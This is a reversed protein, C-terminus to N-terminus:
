LTFDIVVKIDDPRDELAEMWCDLPVRRSILSELWRRDARALAEAAAEYHRRNANVTGFVVQNGLVMARNLAGIDTEMPASASLGALCVIGSPAVRGLLSQVVQPAGTCEMVIDPQLGAVVKGVDGVHYAAGLMGALKPKPGQRSRDFMHVDLGRQKGMLAAILGIPGAGTVLVNRAAWSRSRRGIREVHDWAKAVISAPELLVALLGLGADVKVAFSPDIRFREAGFGDREKIGHEVYRGNRCMDWEGAACAPCPVPDPLRVIGVAHDGPVFGCAAPAERVIGLSEHGLILRERGQPAAGHAGALIERDTGCIGLALTQVLLSGVAASPEPVDDLRASNVVGPVVTIARM